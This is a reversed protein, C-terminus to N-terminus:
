GHVDANVQANFEIQVKTNRHYCLFYFGQSLKASKIQNWTTVVQHTFVYRPDVSRPLDTVLTPRSFEGVVEHYYVCSVSCM